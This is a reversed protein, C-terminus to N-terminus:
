AVTVTGEQYGISNMRLQLTRSGDWTESRKVMVVLSVFVGVTEKEKWMEKAKELEFDMVEVLLSVFVSLLTGEEEPLSPPEEGLWFLAEEGPLSLLVQECGSITRCYPEFVSLHSDLVAVEM